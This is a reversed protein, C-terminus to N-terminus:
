VIVLGQCTPLEVPTYGRHKLWSLTNSCNERYYLLGFDDLLVIAGPTMRDFLSDLAGIEAASSNLDIHLFSIKDPVATKFIEPVTGQIIKVNSFEAFRQQVKALPEPTEYDANVIYNANQQEVPVGSWTDYLWLTKSYSAFDFYDVAVASRFGRHVGLEVLDGNLSLGREFAWCFIHSRWMTNKEQECDAIKNISEVFKENDLFHMNRNVVYLGESFYTSKNNAIDKTIKSDTKFM